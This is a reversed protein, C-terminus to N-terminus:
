VPCGQTSSNAEAGASISYGRTTAVLRSFYERCLIRWLNNRYFVSESFRLRYERRLEDPRPDMSEAELPFAEPAPRPPGLRDHIDQLTNKEATRTPHWGLRDTTVRNDTVFWIVDAPRNDPQAPLPSSM